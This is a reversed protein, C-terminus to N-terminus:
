YAPSTTSGLSNQVIEFTANNLAYYFSTSVRNSDVPEKIVLPKHQLVDFDIQNSTNTNIINHEFIVCFNYKEKM